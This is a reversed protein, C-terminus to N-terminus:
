WQDQYQYWKLKRITYQGFQFGLHFQLCGYSYCHEMEPIKFYLVRLDLSTLCRTDCVPSLGKLYYYVNKVYVQVYNAKQISFFSMKFWSVQYQCKIWSSDSFVVGVLFFGTLSKVNSEQYYYMMKFILMSM